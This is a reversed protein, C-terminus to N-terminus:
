SILAAREAKEYGRTECTSPAMRPSCQHGGAMVAKLLPVEM